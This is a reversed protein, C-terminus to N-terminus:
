TGAILDDNGPVHPHGRFNVVNNFKDRCTALTKDDGAIMSYTDGIQIANPMEQQLTVLTSVQTKVEMQYTANLGTLWTLLGYDYYGTAAAITSDTFQRKNTVGTVASSITFAGLSLKCRGDGLKANCSPAIVHGINQQLAQTMGRLEATFMSRGTKLVGLRGKRLIMNGMTLDMYNVLFIEVQAYDWLGANIDAETISASNLISSVELNDVNLGGSTQINSATHGSAASYTLGNFVLDNSATTFGFVTTDKRTVKWCTALTTVEQAMHAKLAVSATKGM